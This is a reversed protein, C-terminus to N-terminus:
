SYTGDEMYSFETCSAHLGTWKRRYTAGKHCGYILASQLAPVSPASYSIKALQTLTELPPIQSQQQRPNSAISKAPCMGDLMM